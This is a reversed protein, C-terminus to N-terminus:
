FVGSFIASNYEIYKKEAKELRKKFSFPSNNQIKGESPICSPRPCLSFGVTRTHDLSKFFYYIVQTHTHTHRQACACAFFYSTQYEMQRTAFHKKFLSFFIIEHINLLFNGQGGRSTPSRVANSALSMSIAQQM